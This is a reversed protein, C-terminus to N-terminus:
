ADALREMLEADRTLVLNLAENMQAQRKERADYR